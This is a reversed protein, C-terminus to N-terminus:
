AREGMDVNGDEDPIDEDDGDDEMSSGEEDETGELMTGQVANKQIEQIEATVISHEPRTDYLTLYKSFDAFGQKTIPFLYHQMIRGQVEFFIPVIYQLTKKLDGDCHMKAAAIRCM